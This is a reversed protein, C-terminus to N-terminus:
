TGYEGQREQGTRFFRDLYADHALDSDRMLSFVEAGDRPAAELEFSQALGLYADGEDGAYDTAEPEARDIADESSGAHWLTIREEYIHQDGRAIEFLCRVAYWRKGVMGLLTGYM